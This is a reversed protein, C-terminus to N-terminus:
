QQSVNCLLHPDQAWSWDLNEVRRRTETAARRRPSPIRHETELRNCGVRPRGRTTIDERCSCAKAALPDQAGNWGTQMQGQPPRHHHHRRPLQVGELRTSGASWKSCTADAEPSTTKTATRTSGTSSFALKQDVFCKILYIVKGGEAAKKWVSFGM